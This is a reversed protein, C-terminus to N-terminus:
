TPFAGAVAILNFTTGSNHNIEDYLYKRAKVRHMYTLLNEVPVIKTYTRIRRQLTYVDDIKPPTPSYQRIRAFIAEFPRANNVQHELRAKKFKVVLFDVIRGVEITPARQTCSSYETYTGIKWYRGNISIRSTIVKVIDHTYHEPHKHHFRMHRDLVQGIPPVLVETNTTFNNHSHFVYNVEGTGKLTQGQARPRDLFSRLHLTDKGTIELRNYLRVRVSSDVMRVMAGRM